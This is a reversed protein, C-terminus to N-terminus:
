FFTVIHGDGVKTFTRKGKDAIKKRFVELVFWIDTQLGTCTKNDLVWYRVEAGCFVLSSLNQM